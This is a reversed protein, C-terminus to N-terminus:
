RRTQHGVVETGYAFPPKSCEACGGKGRRKTGQLKWQSYSALSPGALSRLWAPSGTGHLGRVALGDVEEVGGRLGWPTLRAM